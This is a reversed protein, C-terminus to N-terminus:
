FYSYQFFRFFYLIIYYCCSFGDSQFFDYGPEFFCAIDIKFLPLTGWNMSPVIKVGGDSKKKTQSFAIKTSDTGPFKIAVYIHETSVNECFNM